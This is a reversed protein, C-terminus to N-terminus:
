KFGEGLACLLLWGLGGVLFKTKRRQQQFMQAAVACMQPTFFSRKDRM